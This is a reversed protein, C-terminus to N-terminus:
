KTTLQVVEKLCANDYVVEILKKLLTCWIQSAFQMKRRTQRSRVKIQIITSELKM